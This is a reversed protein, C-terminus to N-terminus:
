EPKVEAIKSLLADRWCVGSDWEEGPDLRNWEYGPDTEDLVFEKRGRVAEAAPALDLEDLLWACLHSLSAMQEPLPAAHALNGCVCIGVSEADVREVHSSITTLANTQWIQGEKGIVFHYRIGPLGQSQVHYRAFLDPGVEPRVGSHHIILYRIQDLARTPYAASPHRALQDTVDQYPPTSVEREYWVHEHDMAMKWDAIVHDRGKIRWKDLAPWRYLVLCRIQQNGPASNWDAIEQYANRVWGHNVNVWRDYQNTETIYIPLHRLEQPIARLFDRYNRFHFHCDGYPWDMKAESFVLTPGHGHTYTHLAIGDCQRRLLGLLDTFYKIWDGPRPHQDNGPYRTHDNWPAVAGIVVKDDEHGARSRIEDRCLRFCRAYDEPTIIQGDPREQDHNMENGIIWVRCGPSAQCFNGCRVAFSAYHEPAPICGAGHFGHNLRSIVGFGRDFWEMYNHGGQNGADHGLDEPFVVWGVKNKDMVIDEAGPDHMGFIYRPELGAM